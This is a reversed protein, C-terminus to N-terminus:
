GNVVGEIASDANEGAVYGALPNSRHVITQFRGGNLHPRHAQLFSFREGALGHYRTGCAPCTTTITDLIKFHTTPTLM